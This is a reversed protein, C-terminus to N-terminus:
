SGGVAKMLIISEALTVDDSFVGAAIAETSSLSLILYVSAILSPVSEKM